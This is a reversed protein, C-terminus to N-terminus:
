SKKKERERQDTSLRETESLKEREDRSREWREGDGGGGGGDVVVVGGGGGGGWCCCFRFRIFM